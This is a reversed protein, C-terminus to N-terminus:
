HYISGSGASFRLALGCGWDTSAAWILSGGCSANPSGNAITWSPSSDEARSPPAM